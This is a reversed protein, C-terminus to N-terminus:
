TKLLYQDYQKRTSANKLTSYAKNIQKYYFHAFAKLKDSKLSFFKDPHFLRSLRRYNKRIDSFPADPPLCLNHYYNLTKYRQALWSLIKISGQADQRSLAEWYTLDLPHQDLSPVSTQNAAASQVQKARAPAFKGKKGQLLYQQYQYRTEPKILISRAEKILDIFQQYMVKESATFLAEVKPSLFIQVKQDIVKKIDLSDTEPPIQLYAYYSFQASRLVTQIIHDRLALETPSSKSLIDELRSAEADRVRIFHNVSFFALLALIKPPDLFSAEYIDSILSNHEIVTLLGREDPELQDLHNMEKIPKILTCTCAPDKLAPVAALMRKADLQAFLARTLSLSSVAAGPFYEFTALPQFMAACNELSSLKLLCNLYYSLSIRRQNDPDKESLNKKLAVSWPTNVESTPKIEGIVRSASLESVNSKFDVCNGHHVSFICVIKQSRIHLAGKMNPSLGKFFINLFSGNPIRSNEDTLFKSATM